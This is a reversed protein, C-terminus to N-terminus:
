SRLVPFTSIMVSEGGRLFYNVADEAVVVVGTEICVDVEITVDTNEEIIDVIAVVEEGITITAEITITSATTGAQVMGTKMSISM